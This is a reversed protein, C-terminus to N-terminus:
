ILYDKFWADDLFLDDLQIGNGDLNGDCVTDSEVEGIERRHPKSSSWSRVSAFIKFAKDLHGDKAQDGIAAKAEDINNLLRDMVQLVDVEGSVLASDWFADTSTSLKILVVITRALQTFFPFSMGFYESVPIRFFNELASKITNLCQYLSELGQSDTFSKNCLMLGSISLETYYISSLMIEDQLLQPSMRMKIDNVRHRLGVTFFAPPPAKNTGKIDEVDGAIRQLKVQQIFIEDHMSENHEGLLTVCENMYPTWQMTDICSLEHCLMRSCSTERRSDKNPRRYCTKDMPLMNSEEPPPKNLRLSFVLTMALQSFRSVRAATGHLLNEHGWAIFTLLGLLLDLDVSHANNDFYVRQILTQKIKEGLDLKVKTSQSSAEMICTVLFPRHTSMWQANYPLHMFPFYKLMKVRFQALCEEPSPDVTLETPASPPQSSTIAYVPVPKRAYKKPTSLPNALSNIVRSTEVQSVLSDIKGELQAIRHIPNNSEASRSRVAKGPMCHKKLRRCRECGHGGPHSVCKCKSKFCNLCAKGYLAIPEFPRDRPM